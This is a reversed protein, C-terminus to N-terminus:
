GMYLCLMRFLMVAENQPINSDLKCDDKVAAASERETGYVSSLADSVVVKAENKLISAKLKCSTAGPSENSQVYYLFLPFSRAPERFNMIM